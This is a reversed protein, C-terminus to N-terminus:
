WYASEQYTQGSEPDHYYYHMGGNSASYGYVVTGEPVKWQLRGLPKGIQDKSIPSREDRFSDLVEGDRAFRENLFRNLDKEKVKYTAYHDLFDQQLTIDTANPPILGRGRETWWITNRNSHHTNTGYIWYLVSAVVIWLTLVITCGTLIWRLIPSRSPNM